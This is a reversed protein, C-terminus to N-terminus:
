TRYSSDVFLVSSKSCSYPLVCKRKTELSNSGSTFTQSLSSFARSVNVQLEHEWLMEGEGLSVSM